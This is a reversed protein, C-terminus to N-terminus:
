YAIIDVTGSTQSTPTIHIEVVASQEAGFSNVITAEVKKFWKGNLETWPQLVGLISHMKSGKYPYMAKFQREALTDLTNRQEITPEKSLITIDSNEQKETKTSEQIKQEEAEVEESSDSKPMNILGAVMLAFSVFVLIIPKKNKSKTFLTAVMWVFGVLVGLMSLVVLIGM